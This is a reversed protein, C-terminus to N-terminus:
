KPKYKLRVKDSNDIGFQFLRRLNDVKYYYPNGPSVGLIITRRNELFVQGNQITQSSLM